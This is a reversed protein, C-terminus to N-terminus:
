RLVGELNRARINAWAETELDFRDFMTVQPIEQSPYIYDSGWVLQEHHTELFGQAFEPDRTLANWGSGASLDGYLNDYVALLEPVRGGPEVPGEPYRSRDAATVDASIHAWWFHAHAIFDVAPYSGLVNELGPLGVDDLLAKDDLHCLIPLEYEACLEYITELRRDDIPLGPKLEGFGRAGRDVYGELLNEVAEAGYVLTRPDVSCFPILRDPFSEVQELIWWSPAQVPYSEPSDLAQVVARDVGQEDMWSVLGDASLPERGLTERPILHTHADFLPLDGVADGQGDAQLNRITEEGDRPGGIDANTGTAISGFGSGLGATGAVALIRRRSTADCSRDPNCDSARPDIM